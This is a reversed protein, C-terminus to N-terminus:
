EFHLLERIIERSCPRQGNILLKERNKEREIRRDGKMSFFWTAQEKEFDSELQLCLTMDTDFSVKNQLTLSVSLDLIILILM